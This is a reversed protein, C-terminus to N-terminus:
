KGGGIAALLEDIAHQVGCGWGRNWSDSESRSDSDETDRGLKEVLGRVRALVLEAAAHRADRHGDRYASGEDCCFGTMAAHNVPLNLIAQHVERGLAMM